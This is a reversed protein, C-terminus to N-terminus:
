FRTLFYLSIGTGSTVGFPQTFQSIFGTLEANDAIIFRGGLATGFRLTNAAPLSVDYFDTHDSQPQYVQMKKRIDRETYLNFSFQVTDNLTYITRFGTRATFASFTKDVHTAFTADRQDTQNYYVQVYPQFFGLGFPQQYSIEAGGLLSSTATSSENRYRSLQEPAFKSASSGYVFSARAQLFDGLVFRTFGAIGPRRNGTTYIAPLQEYVGPDITLGASIHENFRYSTTMWLTSTNADSASNITRLGIKLCLTRDLGVCDQEAMGTLLAHQLNYFHQFQTISQQDSFAQAYSVPAAALTSALLLLGSHRHLQM